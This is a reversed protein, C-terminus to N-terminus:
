KFTRSASGRWEQDEIDESIREEALCGARKRDEKVRGADYLAERGGRIGERHEVFQNNQFIEMFNWIMYNM